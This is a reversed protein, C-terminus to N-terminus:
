YVYETITMYEKTEGDITMEFSTRGHLEGFHRFKDLKKGISKLYLLIADHSNDVGDFSELLVPKDDLVFISTNM